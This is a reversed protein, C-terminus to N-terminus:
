GTRVAITDLDYALIAWETWTRHGDHGKLRTRDLDYRRKLHSIRGEAGTRYRQRRRQTRRAGPQQRGSIFVRDPALDTFADNTPGPAFGADLAVEKPTLGLRDLEAVTVPLLSNESPNGVQTAAGPLVLGRAGRRTNETVEAIQTVYGFENPKGLKGTRIPRADPDSLSVIRDAIAEGAVRKRIQGAVKECRGALEDLRNAERLKRQAGRGRASARAAAALRRAERVSKELLKGTQETLAMVQVKAQGTRRRITRTIARLTRGMSRSRDRVRREPAKIRAALKRGERALAKVGASALGADTPYKIDAETVTSDIRVARATFRKERVARSILARTVESVTEDGIRRTLKRVTSEDPVRASLAIRCLRRLHISDSVEAVLTRCGWDHRAKLVMLRVYTEMAVTPRGGTLVARGTTEVERRWHAVVSAFMEPGALLRDLAALDEPLERVEIPLAEDGL